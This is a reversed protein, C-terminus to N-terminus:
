VGLYDYTDGSLVTGGLLVTGESKYITDPMKFFKDLTIGAFESGYPIAPLDRINPHNEIVWYTTGAVDASRRIGDFNEPLKDELRYKRSLYSYVKQRETDTLRRDFVIVESIVGAFSFPPNTIGSTLDTVWGASGATNTSNATTRVYAGMRGIVIDSSNIQTSPAAFQSEQVPTIFEDAM